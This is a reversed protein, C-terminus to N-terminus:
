WDSTIQVFLRITEGHYYYYFSSSLIIAILSHPLSPSLYLSPRYFCSGCTVTLPRWGNGPSPRHIHYIRSVLMGRAACNQQRQVIERGRYFEDNKYRKNPCRARCEHLSIVLIEFSVFDLILRRSLGKLDSVHPM